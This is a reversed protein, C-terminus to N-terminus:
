CIKLALSDFRLLEPGFRCLSLACSMADSPSYAFCFPILYKKTENTSRNPVMRALITGAVAISAIEFDPAPKAPKATQNSMVGACGSIRAIGSGSLTM